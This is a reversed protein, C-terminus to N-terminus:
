FSWRAPDLLPRERTEYARRTIRYTPEFGVGAVLIVTAGPWSSSFSRGRCAGVLFFEAPILTATKCTHNHVM